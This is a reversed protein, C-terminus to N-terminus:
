NIVLTEDEDYGFEAKYQTFLRQIEAVYLAHVARLEGETPEATLKTAIPKGYVVGFRKGKPPQKPMWLFKGWFIIMPIKLTKRFFNIVGLEAGHRMALKIFGLRKMLVLENQADVCPIHPSLLTVFPWVWRRAGWGLLPPLGRVVKSNPDTKFIEPVGGPYVVISTGDNLVKDATSRSADVGGLWLCLERGLPVYFM